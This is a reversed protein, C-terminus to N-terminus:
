ALCHRVEKVFEPVGARELADLLGDIDTPPRRHDGVQQQLVEIVLDPALDLQDLLFADPTVAEVEYPRLAAPPFDSVNFTIILSAGARVSAALVHRDKPHNAMVGVLDQYGAVEAERFADRMCDLRREVGLPDIGVRMLNRRLEDLIEASWLPQYLGAEALRLLTDCLYSPFLASTDLLAPFAM